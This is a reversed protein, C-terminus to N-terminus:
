VDWAKCPSMKSNRPAGLVYDRGRCYSHLAGLMIFALSAVSVPAASSVIACEHFFPPALIRSLTLKM